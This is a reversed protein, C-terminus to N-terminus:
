LAPGVRFAEGPVPCTLPESSVLAGLSSGFGRLQQPMLVRLAHGWRYLRNDAAVTLSKPRIGQRSDVTLSMVRLLLFMTAAALFCKLKKIFCNPSVALGSILEDILGGWM